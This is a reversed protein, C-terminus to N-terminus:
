IHILSLDHDVADIHLFVPALARVARAVPLAIVEAARALQAKFLADIREHGVCAGQVVIYLDTEVLDLAGHAVATDLGDGVQLLIGTQREDRGRGDHFAAVM